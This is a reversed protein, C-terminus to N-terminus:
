SFIVNIFTGFFLINVHFQHIKYREPCISPMDSMSYVWIQSDKKQFHYFVERSRKKKQHIKARNRDNKSKGM